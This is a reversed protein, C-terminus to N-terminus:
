YAIDRTARVFVESLNVNEPATAIYVVTDAIQAPQIAGEQNLFERMGASHAPDSLQEWIETSVTGPNVLSVRIGEPGLEQRMGDTMAFLAQKSTAYANYVPTTTHCALSGINIITGSGQARMPAVAAHCTYLSALLNTNIVSRWQSFDAEGINTAQITGAANVLIDLRGFRSLTDAVTSLAFAEDSIDGALTLVASGSSEIQEALAVLRQARRATIAVSAGSKALALACAAGIGASAGTVLAVKGELLRTM